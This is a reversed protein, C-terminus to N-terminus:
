LVLSQKVQCAEKIISSPFDRRKMLEIANGHSVVGQKLKYDHVLQGNLVKEDLYYLDYQKSALYEALELDHTSVLVTCYDNNLYNLVAVGGSIREITNTGKFLEDLIFFCFQKEQSTDILFKM